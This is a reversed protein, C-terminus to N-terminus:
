WVDGPRWECSIPESVDIPPTTPTRLVMVADDEEPTRRPGEATRVSTPGRWREWGLREYFGHAGTDLAGLEYQAAVHEGVAGMVSTGYGRGRRDAKTVVNEVFGTRLPVAGVCLAREVVAAHSVIAGGEEVLFHLGPVMHDWESQSFDAWGQRCLKWLMAEDRESLRDSTEIRISPGM